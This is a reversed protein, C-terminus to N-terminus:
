QGKREAHVAGYVTHMLIKSAANESACQILIQLHRCLPAKGNQLLSFRDNFLTQSAPLLPPDNSTKKLATFPIKATPNVEGLLVSITPATGVRVSDLMIAAVEAVQSPLALQVSGITAYTNAYSVGNDAFTSSDRKLIPGGGPGPGILLTKQGPAIEISQVASTGGEIAARPSWLFGSEPPSIPSYRFWGVSGDSVILGTDGSNQEHWTVFTTAPNYLSENIGGTTVKMFQDGIPQGTETYGASPDLSIQKNATSFMHVTSGVIDFADPSLLGIGKCYRTTYFPNSATGNGFTAYVDSATFTLIAGNTLTVPEVRAIVDPLPTVNSPSWASSGNGVPADPGSSWQLINGVAAWLRGMSYSLWTIGAPPPNNIGSIPAQLEIILASDPSLDQYTWTSGSPQPFSSVQELTNGDQPTRWLYITDTQADTSCAGQLQPFLDAGVVIPVSLPAATSITDDIACGYSFSWIWAGTNAASYAGLNSWVASGDVMTTGTTTDWIPATTGSKGSTILQQINGNSDIIQTALSVAVSAGITTWTSSTGINRWVVTGDSIITGTGPQWAPTYAGSTGATTCQFISTVTVPTQVPVQIQYGNQEQYQYTTIYYTYTAKVVANLSYNWSAIWASAGLCTWVATGDNTTAGLATAWTPQATGTTGGQTLKQINGNSDLIMLSTSYVTSTTWSPYISPLPVQNVSAAVTPAPISWNQISSGWCKWQLGGDNTIAGRTASWAPQTAGTAAAGAGYTVTGTDAATAYNAHTFAVQFGNPIATSTVILTQGNLFTAATLGAMSIRANLAFPSSGQLMVTVVNGAISISAVNSIIQIPVQQINNNTDIIWQGPQFTKNAAWSTSARMWKKNDVGNSFYLTNGVSQFCTKGAGASKTWILTKQNPSNAEYVAGATDVMVWIVDQGDVVSHFDYFRNVPPFIASNFVSDGLRRMLSLDPGIEMNLGDWISDTRGAQYFKAELYPVEADRLPNRQTVLGTIYRDMTLPAYESAEPTGGAATIPNAM